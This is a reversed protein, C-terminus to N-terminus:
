SSSIDEVRDFRPQAPFTLYRAVVKKVSSGDPSIDLFKLVRENTESDEDHNNFVSLGGLLRGTNKDKVIYTVPSNNDDSDDDDDDDPDVPNFGTPMGISSLTKHDEFSAPIAVSEEVTFPANYPSDPDHPIAPSITIPEEPTHIIPKKKSAMYPYVNSEKILTILEKNIRLHNIM